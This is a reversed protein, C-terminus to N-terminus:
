LIDWFPKRRPCQYRVSCTSKNGQWSIQKKRMQRQSLYILYVNKQIIVSKVRYIGNIKGSNIQLCIVSM